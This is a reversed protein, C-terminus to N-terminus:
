LGSYFPPSGGASGDRDGSQALLPSDADMSCPPGPGPSAAFSVAGPRVERGM